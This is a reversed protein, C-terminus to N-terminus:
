LRSLLLREQLNSSATVRRWVRQYHGLCGSTICRPHCPIGGEAEADPSQYTWHTWPSQRSGQHTRLPYLDLRSTTTLRRDGVAHRAHGIHPQESRCLVARGRSADDSTWVVPMREHRQPRPDPLRDQRLSIARACASSSTRHTWANSEWRSVRHALTPSICPWSREPVVVASACGRPQYRVARRPVPIFVAFALGSDHQAHQSLADALPVQARIPCLPGGLSAGLWDRGSMVTSGPM